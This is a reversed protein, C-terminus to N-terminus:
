AIGLEAAARELTALRDLTHPHTSYLARYRVFFEGRRSEWQQRAQAIDVRRALQAGVAMNCVARQAAELSGACALGYRDCTFECRRSYWLRPWICWGGWSAVFHRWGLHGAYHHGLEHGV